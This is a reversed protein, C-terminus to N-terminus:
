LTMFVLQIQAGAAASQRSAAPQPEAAAGGPARTVASRAAPGVSAPFRLSARASAAFSSASTRTGGPARRSREAGALM